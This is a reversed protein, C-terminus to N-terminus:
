SDALPRIFRNRAFCKLHERCLREFHAVYKPV